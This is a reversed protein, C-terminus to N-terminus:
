CSMLPILCGIPGVPFIYLSGVYCIVSGVAMLILWKLCCLTMSELLTLQILCSIFRPEMLTRKLFVFLAVHAGAGVTLWCFLQWGTYLFCWVAWFPSALAKCGRRPITKMMMTMMSTLTGWRNMLSTPNRMRATPPLLRCHTILRGKTCFHTRQLFSNSRGFLPRYSRDLCNIYRCVIQGVRSRGCCKCM